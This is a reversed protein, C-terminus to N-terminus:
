EKWLYKVPTLNKLINLLQEDEVQLYQVDFTFFCEAGLEHTVPNVLVANIYRFGTQSCQATIRQLIEKDTKEFSYYYDGQFEQEFIM